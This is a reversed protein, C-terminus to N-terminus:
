KYTNMNVRKKPNIIIITEHNLAIVKEIFTNEAILIEMPKSLIHPERIETLSSLVSCQKFSNNGFTIINNNYTLLVSHKEGLMGDIIYDNLNDDLKLEFPEYIERELTNNGIQGFNNKGFLFCLKNDYGITLTHSYGTYCKNIKINNDNFYKNIIPEYVSKISSDIGLIGWGNDGWVYVNYNCDIAM